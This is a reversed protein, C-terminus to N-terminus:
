GEPLRVSMNLAPQWDLKLNKQLKMEGALLNLIEFNSKASGTPIRFISAKKIEGDVNLYHGEEEGWIAAPLVVDALSTLKSTFAAQVVLFPAKEVQQILKQSPEDDGVALYIAQDQHLQIPKDLGYLAAAQSNAKGNLCLLGKWDTHLVGCSEALRIIKDALEDTDTKNANDGFILLTKEAKAMLNATAIFTEEPVSTMKVLQDLDSASQASKKFGTKAMAAFIGDIVSASSAKSNYLVTQEAIEDLPNESSGITILKTGFAVSRKILFSAVEQDTVPDADLLVILDAKEIDALKNFAAQGLKQAVKSSLSTYKGEELTTVNGHLGNEFFEKGLHIAELPLRTSVLGAVGNEKGDFFPQFHQSVVKVAEKWTAPTLKGEKRVLPTQVRERQDDLPLFRGVKCLLGSNPQANWDGEIKVLYNDKTYATIGCGISCGVCITDTTQLNKDQGRYASWRDILAGTPCVQVCTGCSVCSSEGLPTGLDAMILTNAGREEVGLTYNGVLESCVRVCRRCLICRNHDLIFYPHSADVAYPKWNPQIPWHTMGQEYAATQLECDGDNVVCYPCFHNRDSFIMTLIFKRADRVKATDTQVVMNETVPLTCSTQLTRYGEVEVVCLRCGGYPTLAPHDCLTPIEIGVGQAAKLVTTGDPVTIKEGDITLNVM